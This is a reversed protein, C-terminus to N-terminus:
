RVLTINGSREAYGPINIRYFYVGEPVEQGSNSRGDWQARGSYVVVGWRNFVQLVVGDPWPQVTGPWIDNLGDNNPSFVNPLVIIAKRETVLVTATHVYSCGTPSLITLTIPYSGPSTYRVAPPTDGAFSAPTGGVFQWSYTSGAPVNSLDLATLLNNDPLDLVASSLGFNANGV